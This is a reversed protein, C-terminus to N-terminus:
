IHTITIIDSTNNDAATSSIELKYYNGDLNAVNSVALTNTTTGSYVGTNTLAAYVINNPSEYWQYTITAGTPISAAAAQITVNANAAATTDTPQLTFYLLYDLLTADDDWDSVDSEKFNKSLAVLVEGKHRTQGHGGTYTQYHSWGPVKLNKIRNAPVGAEEASVGLVRQITYVNDELAVNGVYKPGTQVYATEGAANASGNSTLTMLVNSSITAVQYKVGAVGIYDGEKVEM